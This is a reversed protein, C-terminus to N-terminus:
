WFGESELAAVRRRLYQLEALMVPILKASDM